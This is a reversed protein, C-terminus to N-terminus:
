AGNVATGCECIARNNTPVIVKRSQPQRRAAGLHSADAKKEIVVLHVLNRM